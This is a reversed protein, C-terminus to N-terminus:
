FKSNQENTDTEKKANIKVIKIPNTYREAAEIYKRTIEANDKDIFAVVGRKKFRSIFEQIELNEEDEKEYVFVPFGKKAAYKRIIQTFNSEGGLIFTVDNQKKLIKDLKERALDYDILNEKGTVYCYFM